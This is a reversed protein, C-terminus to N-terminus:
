VAGEQTSKISEVLRLENEALKDMGKKKYVKALYGHISANNPSYKLAEQFHSIAKEYDNLQMLVRGKGLYGLDKKPALKIAHDCYDIAQQTKKMVSYLLALRVYAEPDNANSRISRLYAEEADETKKHQKFFDGLSIFSRFAKNTDQSKEVISLQKALALEWQAEQKTRVDAKYLLGLYSHALSSFKDIRIAKLFLERAEVPRSNDLKLAGMGILASSCKEDMRLAEKYEVEAAAIKKHKRFAEGLDAHCKADNPSKKVKAIHKALEGFEREKNKKGQIRYIDGLGRYADASYANFTLAKEYEMVAEKLKNGLHNARGLLCHAQDNKPDLVLVRRIYNQSVSFMRKGQFSKALRCLVKADRPDKVSQKLDDAISFAADAEPIMGRKYMAQGLLDHYKEEIPKVKLAEKFEYTAKLFDGKAMFKKGNNFFKVDKEVFLDTFFDFFGM